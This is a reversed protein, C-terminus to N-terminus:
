AQLGSTQMAFPGFMSAM